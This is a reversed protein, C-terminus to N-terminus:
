LTDLSSLTYIPPEDEYSDVPGLKDGEVYLELTQADPNYYVDKIRVDTGLKLMAHLHPVPLPIKVCRRRYLAEFHWPQLAGM